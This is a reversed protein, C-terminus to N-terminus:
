AGPAAHRLGVLWRRYVATTVTTTHLDFEDRTRLKCARGRPRTIAAEALLMASRVNRIWQAVKANRNRLRVSKM